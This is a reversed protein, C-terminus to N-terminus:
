NELDFYDFYDTCPLPQDEFARIMDVFATSGLVSLPLNNAAVVFDFFLVLGVTSAPSNPQM